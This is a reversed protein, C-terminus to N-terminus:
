RRPTGGCHHHRITQSYQFIQSYVLSLVDWSPFVLLTAAITAGESNALIGDFPGGEDMIRYIRDLMQPMADTGKSRVSHRFQHYKKKAHFISPNGLGYKSVQGEDCGAFCLGTILSASTEPRPPPPPPSPSPYESPNLQPLHSTRIIKLLRSTRSIQYKSVHKHRIWIM